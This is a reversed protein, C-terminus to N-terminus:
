NLRTLFCMQSTNLQRDAAIINFQRNQCLEICQQCSSKLLRPLIALTSM